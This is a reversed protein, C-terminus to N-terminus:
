LAEDSTALRAGAARMAARARESEGPVVDVGRCGDEVVTVGYGLQCADLVTHKVCVDLALGLVLLERVGLDRLYEHLGTAQRHGNDFLGSYSDIEPNTGKFFVRQIDRTRLTSALRAGHSHQICHDPWLVQQLGHLDVVEFPQKGPHQSAFSQHDAPHWDLTAVVVRAAPQALLRNAVPIVGHGDPVPLSGTPLFDNQIDVLLIAKM